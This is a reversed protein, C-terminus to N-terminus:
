WTRFESIRNGQMSVAHCDADADPDTPADLEQPGLLSPRLLNQGVVRIHIPLV